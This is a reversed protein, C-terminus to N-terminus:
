VFKCLKRDIHILAMSYAQINITVELVFKGRIKKAGIKLLLIFARYHISRQITKMPMFFDLIEDLINLISIPLIICM